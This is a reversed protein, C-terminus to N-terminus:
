LYALIINTFLLAFLTAFIFAPEIDVIKHGKKFYYFTFLLITFIFGLPVLVMVDPFGSVLMLALLLEPGQELFGGRYFNWFKFLLYFAGSILFSVLINTWVRGIVYHLFYGWHHEYLPRIWEMLLPTTKPLPLTLLDKTIFNGHSWVYYQGWSVFLGYFINLGIAIFVLKLFSINKVWAPRFFRIALIILFIIWIGLVIANLNSFVFNLSNLKILNM